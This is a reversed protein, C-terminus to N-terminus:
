MLQFFTIQEEDIYFFIWGIVTISKIAVMWDIEFDELFFVNPSNEIAMSSFMKVFNLSVLDM